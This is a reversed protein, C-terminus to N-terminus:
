RSAPSLRAQELYREAAAAYEVSAPVRHAPLACMAVM